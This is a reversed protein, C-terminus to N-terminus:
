YGHTKRYESPTMGIQKKCFTTFHAASSFGYDEIIDCIAVEHDLLLSKVDDAKQMLIWQYPSKNFNRKFKRNFTPLSLNCFEALEKITKAHKYSDIVVNVFSTSGKIVPFFLDICEEKTYFTKLLIILEKHKLSLLYGGLVKNKMYSELLMLFSQIPSAIPLARVKFNMREPTLNLTSLEFQECLLDVNGFTHVVLTVDEVAMLELRSDFPVLFLSETCVNLENNDSLVSLEGKLIFFLYYYQTPLFSLSEGKKIEMFKFGLSRDM